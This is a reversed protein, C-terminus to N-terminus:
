VSIIRAVAHSGGQQKTEGGDGNGAGGYWPLDAFEHSPRQQLIVVAEARAAGLASHMLCFCLLQLSLSVFLAFRRVHLSLARLLCRLVAM